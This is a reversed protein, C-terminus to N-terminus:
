RRELIHRMSAYAYIVHGFVSLVASAPFDMKYALIQFIENRPRVMVRDFEGNSIMSPFHDFGRAFCEAISFAM